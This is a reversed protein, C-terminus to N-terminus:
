VEMGDIECSKIKLEGDVMCFKYTYVSGKTILQKDNCDSMEIRAWIDMITSTTKGIYIGSSVSGSKDLVMTIM